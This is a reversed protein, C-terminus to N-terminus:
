LIVNLDRFSYQRCVHQIFRSRRVHLEGWRSRLAASFAPAPAAGGDRDGRLQGRGHADICMAGKHCHGGSNMYSQCLRSKFRQQGAGDMQIVTLEMATPIIFMPHMVFPSDPTRCRPASPIHDDRRAHCRHLEIFMIVTIVRSEYLSRVVVHIVGAAALM